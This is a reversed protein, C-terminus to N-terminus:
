KGADDGKRQIGYLHVIENVVPNLIAPEEDLIAEFKDENPHLLNARIFAEKDTQKGKSNIFRHYHIPAKAMVVVLHGDNSIYKGIKDAGHEAELEALLETAEAERLRLKLRAAKDAAERKEAAAAIRREAAEIALDIESKGKTANAQANQRLSEEWRAKIQLDSDSKEDSM